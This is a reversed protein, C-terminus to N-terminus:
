SPDPANKYPHSTRVPSPAYSAAAGDCAHAHPRALDVRSRAPPIASADAAARASADTACLRNWVLSGSEATTAAALASSAFRM